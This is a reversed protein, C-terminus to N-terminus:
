KWGHEKRDIDFQSNIVDSYIFEYMKCGVISTKVSKFEMIVNMIIFKVMRYMDVGHTNIIMEDSDMGILSDVFPKASVRHITKVLPVDIDPLTTFLYSPEFDPYAICYRVLRMLFQFEDVNEKIHDSVFNDNTYEHKSAFMCKDSECIVANAACPM